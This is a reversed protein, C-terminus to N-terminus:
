SRPTRESERPRTDLYVVGCRVCRFVQSFLPDRAMESRGNDLVVFHIDKKQAPSPVCENAGTVWTVYSTIAQGTANRTLVKLVKLADGLTPVLKDLGMLAVHVRPLTTVLRANGENTVIGITGTEAM